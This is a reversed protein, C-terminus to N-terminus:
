NGVLVYSVFFLHHQIFSYVTFGYGIDVILLVIEELCHCIINSPIFILWCINWCWLSLLLIFLSVCPPTCVNIFHCLTRPMTIGVTEVVVVTFVFQLNNDFANTELRYVVIWFFIFLTQQITKWLFIVRPVLLIELWYEVSIYNFFLICSGLSISMVYCSFYWGFSFCM